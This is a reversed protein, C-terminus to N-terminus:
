ECRREVFNAVSAVSDLSVMEMSGPRAVAPLDTDVVDPEIPVRSTFETLRSVSVMKNMVENTM